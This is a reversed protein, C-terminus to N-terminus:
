DVVENADLPRLLDLDKLRREQYFERAESGTTKLKALESAAVSRTNELSAREQIRLRALNLRIDNTTLANANDVANCIEVDLSDTSVTNLHQIKNSCTDVIYQMVKLENIKSFPLEMTSYVTNAFCGELIFADTGEIFKLRLFQLLDRDIGITPDSIFDCRLIKPMSFTELINIKDDSFRDSEEITASIECCADDIAVDPVIGHDELCEASSKVGFSMVITEGSSYSREANLKVVKEKGFLGTGSLVPEACSFPDFEVFDLGPVIMLENDVVVSREKVIGLAWFFLDETFHQQFYESYMSPEYSSLLTLITSYDSRAADIQNKIDRTTSKCFEDIFNLDDCRGFLGKPKMTSLYSLYDNFISKEKLFNQYLLYIALLGYDGTKFSASIIKRNFMSNAKSINICISTPLSYITEGEQISSTAVCAYSKPSNKDAVFTCKCKIPQQFPITKSSLSHKEMWENLKSVDQTNTSYAESDINILNKTIVSHRSVKSLKSIYHSNFIHQHHFCTAENIIRCLCIIICLVPFKM